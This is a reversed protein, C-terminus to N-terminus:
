KGILSMAIVNSIKTAVEDCLFLWQGSPNAELFIEEGHKNVIFDYACYELNADKHFALLKKQTNESLEFPSMIDKTQNKRWDVRTEMLRQSDIKVTFVQEGVVIVRLEYKKDIEEQYIGPALFVAQQQSKIEDLDTKTTYIVSQYTMFSSLTKYIIKDSASLHACVDSSSNSIIGKPILLGNKLAMRLQTAKSMIRKTSNISNIWKSNECFDSLAHLALRWEYMRFRENVTGAEGLTEPQLIPKPRWFVSKIADSSLQNDEEDISISLRAETQDFLYSLYHGEAYRKFIVPSEGFNTLEKQVAQIHPDGSDQTVILIKSMLKM